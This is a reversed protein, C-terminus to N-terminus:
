ARPSPGMAHLEQIGVRNEFRSITPQSALSEGVVPDRGLLLKHIPDDGLRAADNADAHGCALGFIRQALLEALTHRVKAPQRDDVM